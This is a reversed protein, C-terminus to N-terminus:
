LPYVQEIRAQLENLKRTIIPPPKLIPHNYGILLIGTLNHHLAKVGLIIKTTQPRVQDYFKHCETISFAGMRVFTEERVWLLDNGFLQFENCYGREKLNTIVEQPSLFM